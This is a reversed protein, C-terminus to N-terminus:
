LDDEEDETWLDSLADGFFYSPLLFSVLDSNVCHIVSVVIGAWHKIMLTKEKQEWRRKDLLQAICGIVSM